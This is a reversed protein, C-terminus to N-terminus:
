LDLVAKWRKVYGAESFEEKLVERNRRGEEPSFELFARFSLKETGTIDSVAITKDKFYGNSTTEPRLFVKKGLYLLTLTNGLGQQRDHNMMAVDTGALLELYRDPPMFDLVPRFKSGFLTQGERIVRRVYSQKKAGYSLPCLIELNEGAFGSLFGLAEIHRNTASGSNGLLIVAKEEKGKETQRGIHEDCREFHTPIPYVVEHYEAGTRYIKKLLDFDGKLFGAIHPIRRIVPGRALHYLFHKPDRYRLRYEYIDAGWFIWATKELSKRKLYWYFIAPGMPLLHFYSRESQRILDHVQSLNRFGPLYVVNTIGEPLRAGTPRCQFVFRHGQLDFHRVLFELLALNYVHENKFIHVKM